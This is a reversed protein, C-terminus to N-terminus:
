SPVSSPVSSLKRHFLVILPVAAKPRTLPCSLTLTVAATRARTLASPLHHISLELSALRRICFSGISTKERGFNLM